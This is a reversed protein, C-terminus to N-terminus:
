KCAVSQSEMCNLMDSGVTEPEYFREMELQGASGKENDQVMTSNVVLGEAQGSTAMVLLGSDFIVASPRSQVEVMTSVPNSVVPLIDATTSLQDSISYNSVDVGSYSSSLSVTKNDGIQADNFAGTASVNVVDGVILGTFIASSTIITANTNGDFVKDAATIGSTVLNAQTVNATTTAQDTFTYNGVDTGGYTSTLTVTKGTAVNKDSFTGALSALTLDDGSIIGGFAVGSGDVVATTTADYVKNNAAIGSVTIAKQNVTLTGTTYALGYGLQDVAGSATLTKSGATYNGTTSTAGSVSVAAASSLAQLATDGNIGSVSTALAPATGYTVTEDDANITLTPQERYIAYNGTGLVSTFNSAAEDSNYRFRGSGAGVLSTLGISDAVSGSYLTARGGSGVTLTPSGSILINGGSATGAATSRGANLLLASASADTTTINESVTLNGSETVISVAGTATIGTTNVIGITLADSDVYNISGSNAALTAVNNGVNTLTFSGGGLLALGGATIAANQTVNGSSNLTLENAGVNIAGALNIGGSGSQLTLNDTFTYGNATILGAASDGITISSFDDQLYGLETVDLNLTGVGGALGVTTAATSARINLAGSSQLRTYSGFDIIDSIINIDSSSATIASGAKYGIIAGPNAGGSFIGRAGGDLTITGTSALFDIDSLSIGYDATTAEGKIAINGGGTALVQKNVDYNFTIGYSTSSYGDIVIADGSTKGSEILVGAVASTAINVGYSSSNDTRGYLGIAGTGSLLNVGTSVDIGSAYSVFDDSYGRVLIDGGNSNITLNSGILVGSTNNASAYGTTLDAGGSLTINGGNSTLDSNTALSIYGLGSADSDSWLTIDGSTIIDNGNTVINGTAKALVAGGGSTLSNNLNINGAYINIAGTASLANNITVDATNTTKGINIASFTQGLSPNYNFFNSNVVGDFSTSTSELTFIGSTNVNVDNNNFSFNDSTITIDSSSATIPTGTKSGFYVSGDTWLIDGAGEITIAGSNALIETNPRFVFDLTSTGTDGILTVGGGGTAYVKVGDAFEIGYSSGSTTVSTDGLIKIANVSSSSSQLTAAGKVVVGNNLTGAGSSQSIGDFLINGTGSNISQTGTWLGIGWAGWGSATAGSFSKGRLTIDGGGSNLVLSSDIRIGEANTGDYGQAYGSGSVDGGALTIDGGNTNATFGNRLDIQGGSVSDTDSSLLLNGGNTTFSAATGQSEVNRSALLQIDANANTTELTNGAFIDQAYFTMAGATTINDSITIDATNNTSKGVTFSGLTTGFNWDDDLTFTQSFGANESELTLGGTSQIAISGAGGNTNLKYIRDSQILINGSYANAGDYGIRINNAGNNATLRIGATYTGQTNNTNTGLLNINGSQSVVNINSLTSRTQLQLGSSDTNTTNQFNATGDLTIDGSVTKINVDRSAAGDSIIVIGHRWGSNTGATDEGTGTININGTTSEISLASTQSRIDVGTGNTFKGNISGIIDIDGAGSSINSNYIRVGQNIGGGDGVENSSGWLKINGGNTTINAGDVNLGAVDDLNTTIAIDGVTIATAGAYPTWLTDNAGAGVWLGGGNTNITGQISIEDGLNNDTDGWFVVNLKGTSSDITRGSYFTIDGVAELTLTRDGAGTYFIDDNVQLAFPAGTGFIEVNTTLLSTAIDAGTIDGGSAAINYAEPDLLWTGASGDSAVTSVEIGNVDLAYGSTEIAGGKGGNIGGKSLLQGAVTTTSDTNKIDSWLVVKGGDGNEIASADIKAGQAMTVRTAQRMDGSGKWDGGVLVEGGGIAGTALIESETGLFIDDGELLIRGGREVMSSASLTGDSRVVSGLLESAASASLIILGGPAIVAGGNEVIANVTSVSVQIDILSGTNDIQLEIVDGSALAVTGKNQALIIGENRVEPALLAAYDAVRITGENLVSASGNGRTFTNSGAMFDDSDIELTTAVLGGVNVSAGPAFTIGNPNSLFIQGNANIQGFIQSANGGSVQNLMVSNTSPQLFNIQADSGVNFSQWDIAARNTSQTIDMKGTSQAIAAQGAVVQGGTPLQNVAPPQALAVPTLLMLSATLARRTLRYQNM